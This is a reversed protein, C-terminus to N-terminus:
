GHLGIMRGEVVRAAQAQIPRTQFDFYSWWKQPGRSSVSLARRCWCNERFGISQYISTSLTCHQRQFGDLFNAQGFDVLHVKLHYASGNLRVDVYGGQVEGARRKRGDIYYFNGTALGRSEQM